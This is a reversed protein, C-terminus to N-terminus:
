YGFSLGKLLMAGGTVVEEGPILGQVISVNDSGSNGLVVPRRVFEGPTTQVFVYAHGEVTIVSTFPIVAIDKVEDGFEVKAFM